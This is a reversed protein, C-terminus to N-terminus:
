SVIPPVKYLISQLAQNCSGTCGPCPGSTKNRHGEVVFILESSTVLGRRWSFRCFESLKEESQKQFSVLSKWCIYVDIVDSISIETLHCRYSSLTWHRSECWSGCCVHRGDRMGSLIMSNSLLSAEISSGVCTMSKYLHGDLCSRDFLPSSSELCRKCREVHIEELNCSLEENCLLDIRTKCNLSLGSWRDRRRFDRVFLQVCTPVRISLACNSQM